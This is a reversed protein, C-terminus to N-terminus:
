LSSFPVGCIKWNYKLALLKRSRVPPVHHPMSHPVCKYESSLHSLPLLRLRMRVRCLYLSSSLASYNIWLYRQRNVALDSETYCWWLLQGQCAGYESLVPFTHRFSPLSIPLWSDILCAWYIWCSLTSFNIRLSTITDSLASGNHVPECLVKLYILFM